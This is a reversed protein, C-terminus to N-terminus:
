FGCVGHESLSFGLEKGRAKAMKEATFQQYGFNDVPDFSIDEEFDERIEREAKANDDCTLRFSRPMFAKEDM